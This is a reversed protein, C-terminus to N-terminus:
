FHYHLGLAFSASEVTTSSFQGFAINIPIGFTIQIGLRRSSFPFIEIGALPETQVQYVNSGDLMLVNFTGRLGLLFHVHANRAVDAYLSFGPGLALINAGNQAMANLAFHFGLAFRATLWTRFEFLGSPVFMGFSNATGLGLNLQSFLSLRFFGGVAIGYPRRFSLSKKAKSAKAATRSSTSDLADSDKPANTTPAKRPAPTERATPAKRPTPTSTERAPPAKRPTPTSTKRATPAKRPTARPPAKQRTEPANTTQRATPRSTPADQAFARQPLSLLSWLCLATLATTTHRLALM